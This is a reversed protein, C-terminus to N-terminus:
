KENVKILNGIYFNNNKQEEEFLRKKRYALKETKAIFSKTTEISKKPNPNNKSKRKLKSFDYAKFIYEKDPVDNLSIMKLLKKHKSSDKCWEGELSLIDNYELILSDFKNIRSWDFIYIKLNNSYGYGFHISNITLYRKYNDKYLIINKNNFWKSITRKIFVEQACPTNDPNLKDWNKYRECSSRELKSLIDFFKKIHETKFLKTM